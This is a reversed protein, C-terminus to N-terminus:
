SAVLEHGAISSSDYPGGQQNLLCHSEGLLIHSLLFPHPKLARMCTRPDDSVQGRGQFGLDALAIDNMIVAHEVDCGGLSPTGQPSGQSSGSHVENAPPIYTCEAHM